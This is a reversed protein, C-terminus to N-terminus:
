FTHYVDASGDDEFQHTIVRLPFSREFPRAKEGCADEDTKKAPSFLSSRLWCDADRVTATADLDFDAGHRDDCRM